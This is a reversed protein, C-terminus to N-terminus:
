RMKGKWWIFEVRNKKSFDTAFNEVINKLIKCENESMRDFMPMTTGGKDKIGFVFFTNGKEDKTNKPPNQQNQKM